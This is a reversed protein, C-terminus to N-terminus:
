IAIKGAETTMEQGVLGIKRLKVKTNEERKKRQDFNIYDEGPLGGERPWFPSGGKRLAQCGM